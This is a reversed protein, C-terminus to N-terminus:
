SEALNKELWIIDAIDKPRNMTRKNILLEPKGVIPISLGQIEIFTRSAWVDEFELGDVKNIIDIRNPPLGMQFVMGPSTLDEIKLDFLPAGFTQLAAWVREPNSDSIRIWLDIDGTGRVYGHFAIAYGGAVMYEVKEDSFASLIDIFDRSLL